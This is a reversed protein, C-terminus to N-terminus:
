LCMKCIRQSAHNNTNRTEDPTESIEMDCGKIGAIVFYPSVNTICFWSTLHYLRIICTWYHHLSFILKQTFTKLSNKEYEKSISVCLIIKILM